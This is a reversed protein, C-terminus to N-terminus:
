RICYMCVCVCVCVYIYVCVCMYVCVCVYIYVIYSLYTHIYIHIYVYIYIYMCLVKSRYQFKIHLLSNIVTSFVGVAREHQKLSPFPFIETSTILLLFIASRTLMHKNGPATGASKVCMNFM